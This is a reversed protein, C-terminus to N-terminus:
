VQVSKHMNRFNLKKQIKNFTNRHMGLYSAVSTKPLKQYLGFNEKKFLELRDEASLTQLMRMKDLAQIYSGEALQRGILNMKPIKIYLENLDDKQIVFLHCDELAKITENAIENSLFSKFSTVIINTPKHDYQIIDNEKPSYFFRSVAEEGNNRDYYAIMLGSVLIGIKKCSKNSSIFKEGKKIKEIKIKSIILSFDEERFGFSLLLQSIRDENLLLDM